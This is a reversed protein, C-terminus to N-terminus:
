NKAKALDQETIAVGYMSLVVPTLTALGQDGIVDDLRKLFEAMPNKDTWLAPLGEEDVGVLSGVVLVNLESSMTKVAIADLLLYRESPKLKRLHYKKGDPGAIVRVNAAPSPPSPADPSLDKRQVNEVKAM